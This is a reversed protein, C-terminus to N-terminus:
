FPQMDVRSRWTGKDPERSPTRGQYVISGTFIIKSIIQLQLYLFSRRGYHTM